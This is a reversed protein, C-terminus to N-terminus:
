SHDGDDNRGNGKLTIAQPHKPLNSFPPQRLMADARKRQKEVLEALPIVEEAVLDLPAPQPALRAKEVTLAAQAARVRTGSSQTEDLYLRRLVDHAGEASRLRANEAIQEELKATLMRIIGEYEALKSQTDTDTM